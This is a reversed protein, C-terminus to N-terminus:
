DRCLCCYVPVNSLDLFRNSVSHPLVLPTQARVFSVVIAIDDLGYSRSFEARVYGRVVLSVLGFALSLTTVILLVGTQNTPTIVAVPPVGGYPPYGSNSM